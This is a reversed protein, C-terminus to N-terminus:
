LRVVKPELAASWDTMGSMTRSRYKIYLLNRWGMAFGLAEISYLHTVRQKPM